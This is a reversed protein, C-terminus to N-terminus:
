FFASIFLSFVLDMQIQTVIVAFLWVCMMWVTICLHRIYDRVEEEKEKERGWGDSASTSDARIRGKASNNEKCKLKGCFTLRIVLLGLHLFYKFSISLFFVAVVFLRSFFYRHWRNMPYSTHTTVSKSHYTSLICFLFLLRLHKRSQKSFNMPKSNEDFKWRHIFIKKTTTKQMHLACLDTTLHFDFVITVRSTYWIYIEFSYFFFHEWM